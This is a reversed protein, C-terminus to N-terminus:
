EVRLANTEVWRYTGLALDAAAGLAAALHHPVLTVELHYAGAADIPLSVWTGPTTWTHVATTGEADTRYLTATMEATSGDTWRARAGPVPLDPSRAWLTAGDAVAVTAGVDHYTPAAADGTLALLAAGHADGLVEFVVTNHGDRLADEVGDLLPAAGPAVHVRNQVWGMVRAYGDLREGDAQLMPGGQRLYDVIHPYDLALDDCVSGGDACIAPLTANQHIDSGAFATIARRATVKRWKTLAAEPYTGLMVLAVLDPDPGAVDDGLFHELGFIATALDNGLVTNFNAHFNYLEMMPIAHDAILTMPLDDEESHAIALLGQRDEVDAIVADVKAPDAGDVLSVGYHARDALHDRLGIPMTHTGEFGVVLTTTGDAGGEGEPCAYRVGYAHDDDDRLLTDGRDPEAYFLEEFPRDAMHSPHDTMFAVGIRQACLAAKMEHVCDWNPLGDADLGAGDCADHSFASHLHIITRVEEFGREALTQPTWPAPTTDVEPLADDEATDVLVTDATDTGAPTADDGCASLLTLAALLIPSRRM